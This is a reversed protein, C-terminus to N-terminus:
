GEPGEALGIGGILAISEGVFVGVEKGGIVLTSDTVLGSAAGGLASRGVRVEPAAM